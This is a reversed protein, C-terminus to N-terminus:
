QKGPKESARLRYTRLYTTTQFLFVHSRSRRKRKEWKGFSTRICSHTRQEIWFDSYVVGLTCSGIMASRVSSNHEERDEAEDESRKRMGQGGDARKGLSGFREGTFISSVFFRKLRLRVLKALRARVVDSEVAPLRPRFLLQYTSSLFSPSIHTRAFMHKAHHPVITHQRMQPGTRQFNGRGILFDAFRIVAIRTISGARSASLYHLVALRLSGIFSIPRQLLGTSLLHHHRHRFGSTLL